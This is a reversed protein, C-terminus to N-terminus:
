HGKSTDSYLAPKIQNKKDEARNSAGFIRFTALFHIKKSSLNQLSM